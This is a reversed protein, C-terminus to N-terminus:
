LLNITYIEDEYALYMGFSKLTSNISDIETVAPAPINTEKLVFFEEANTICKEKEQILQEKYMSIWNKEDDSESTVPEPTIPSDASIPTDDEIPETKPESLGNIAFKPAETSPVKIITVDKITGDKFFLKVQHFSDLLFTKPQRAEWRDIGKDKYSNMIFDDLSQRYALWRLDYPVIKKNNLERHNLTAEAIENLTTCGVPNNVNESKASLCRKKAFVSLLIIGIVLFLPLFFLCALIEM